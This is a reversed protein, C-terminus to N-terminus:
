YLKKMNGVSVGNSVMRLEMQYVLIQMHRPDGRVGASPRSIETDKVSERHRPPLALPLCTARPLANCVLLLQQASILLVATGRLM